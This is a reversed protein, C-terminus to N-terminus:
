RAPMRFGARGAAGSRPMHTRKMACRNLGVPVAEVIDEHCRVRCAHFRIDVVRLGGPVQDPEGDLNRNSSQVSLSLVTSRHAAQEQGVVFCLAKPLLDQSPCCADTHQPVPESPLDGTFCSLEHSNSYKAATTV